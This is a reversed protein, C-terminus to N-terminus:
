PHRELEVVVRVDQGSSEDRRASFAAVRASTQQRLTDLIELAEPLPMEPLRMEVRSPSHARLEAGIGREAIRAYLAGRLDEGAAQAAVAARPSAAQAHMHNLVRALESARKELVAIRESLPHWFGFWFALVTVAVAWPVLIRRERESRERWWATTKELIHM